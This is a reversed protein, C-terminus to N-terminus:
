WNFQVTGSIYGVLPGRVPDQVTVLWITEMTTTRIGSDPVAMDLQTFMPIYGGLTKTYDPLPYLDPWNLPSIFGYGQNLSAMHTVTDLSAVDVSYTLGDPLHAGTADMVEFWPFRINLGSGPTTGYVVVSGGNMTPPTDVGLEYDEVNVVKGLMPSTLKLTSPMMTVVSPDASLVKDPATASVHVDFSTSVVDKAHLTTRAIGNTDTTVTVPDFVEPHDCSIQVEVGARNGATSYNAMVYVPVGYAAKSGDWSTSVIGARARAGGAAAAQAVPLVGLQPGVASITLKAAAVGSTGTNGSNVGPASGGGCAALTLSIIILSIASIFKM